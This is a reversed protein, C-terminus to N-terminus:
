DEDLFFVALREKCFLRRRKEKTNRKNNQVSGGRAADERPRIQDTPTPRQQKGRQGFFIILLLVISGGVHQDTGKQKEIWKAKVLLAAAAGPNSTRVFSDHQQRPGCIRSSGGGAYSGGSNSCGPMQSENQCCPPCTRQSSWSIVPSSFFGDRILSM